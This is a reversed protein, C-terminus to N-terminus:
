HDNWNLMHVAVTSGELLSDSQDPFHILCEALCLGSIMHSDQGMTPMVQLQGQDNLSLTGRVLDLRGLPKRLSKQLIAPLLLGQQRTDGMMKLLAPKVFENFTVLISVPNGPLGFILKKQKRRPQQLTGFYVPKGPKIAIRWFVTEVGMEELTPKVYDYDGVSVGGSSIIIDAQDIAFSFAQKTSKMTDRAHQVVWEDIGLSSLAAQLAYSNSDYIQGDRLQHGPQILEDGTTVIAVRPKTHATFSAYGLTALLGIVAPNVRVGAPLVHEGTKFEDGARRINDGPNATKSVHLFGYHEECYEKMVVAEVSPPVRAGTLVKIATGPELKFEDASGAAIEGLLKLKAPEGSSANQVDACLVAYGDVASNDFRPMAFKATVPQSLFSGLLEDLRLRAQPLPTVEQLILRRAEDYSIM